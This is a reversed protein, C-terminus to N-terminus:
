YKERSIDYIIVKAIVATEVETACFLDLYSVRHQIIDPPLFSMYFNPM